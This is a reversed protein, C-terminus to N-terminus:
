GYYGQLDALAHIWGSNNRLDFRGQGFSGVTALVPRIAGAPLNLNSATPLITGDPWATLHTAATPTVGTLNVVVATAGTPVRPSSVVWTGGPGLPAAPGGVASGPRTDLIRVPPVPRFGKGGTPTFWGAVDAIVQVTGTNNRIQIAGDAGLPVIAQNAITDGAPWNLNSVVPLATGTPGATLHSQATTETATLNVAVATADAPIGDVGTIQVTRTEGPGLPGVPGGTTTGPRTDLVRNPSTATFGAGTPSVEDEVYVGALDAIVDVEGSNDRVVLQPHAPDVIGVTVLNAITRGAPFNLNSATTTVSTGPPSISLFSEATPRDATVNLVAATTGAPLAPLDVTVTGSIPGSHGGTGDRTDVVRTPGQPVFRGPHAEVAGADCGAGQPRAVGREDAGSCAVDDWAVLDRAPSLAGPLRTPLVGRTAGDPGVPVDPGVLASLPALFPPRGIVDTPQPLTVCSAETVVNSGGSLMNLFGILCSPVESSGDGLISRALQVSGGSGPPSAALLDTTVYSTGPPATAINGAITSDSVVLHTVSDVFTLIGGATPAENGAVTSRAITTVGGNEARVGGGGTGCCAGNGTVVNGTITSGTITGTGSVGGGVLNAVNGRILLRSLDFTGEVGGALYQARNAEVLSDRLTVGTGNVGGVQSGANGAIRDNGGDLGGPASVGGVEPVPHDAPAPLDPITANRGINGEVTSRDLQLTKQLVTIGGAANAGTGHLSSLGHNRDVHSRLVFPDAASAGTDVVLGAAANDSISSHDLSVTSTASGGIWVAEGLTPATLDNGTVTLGDATLHTSRVGVGVREGSADSSANGGTVTLHGITLTGPGHHDLVRANTCTQHITAGNGTITVPQTATLDLDGSANADEPAGCTTLDYTTAAALVITVPQASANATDVAARLSGPGGDATTTVTITTDAAAPLAPVVAAAAATLAM